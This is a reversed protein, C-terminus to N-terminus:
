GSLVKSELGYPCVYHPLHGSKNIKFILDSCEVPSHWQHHYAPYNLEQLVLSVCRAFECILIPWWSEIIM